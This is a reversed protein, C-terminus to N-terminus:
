IDIICVCVHLYFSQCDNLFILENVKLMYINIEMAPGDLRHALGKM